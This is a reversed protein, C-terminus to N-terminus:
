RRTNCHYHRLKYRKSFFLSVGPKHIIDSSLVEHSGTKSFDDTFHEQINFFFETSDTDLAGKGVSIGIGSYQNM